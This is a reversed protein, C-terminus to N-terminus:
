CGVRCTFMGAVRGAVRGAGRLAEAAGLPALLRGLAFFHELRCLTQWKHVHPMQVDLVYHVGAEREREM